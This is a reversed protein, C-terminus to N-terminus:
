RLGRPSARDAQMWEPHGAVESNWDILVVHEHKAALATLGSNAASEWSRAVETNVIYVPRPALDVLEADYLSKATDSWGNTGLHIVVVDAQELSGNNRAADVLPPLEEIQRGERTVFTLQSNGIPISRAAMGHFISDGFLLIQGPEDFLPGSLEIFEPSQAFGNLVAGASYGEQLLDVWYRLGEEDPSRDLVNNYILTVLEEDSVPGYTARFEDSRVFYNAIDVMPIGDYRVSHWYDLGGLDATRDFAALYLRGVAARDSAASAQAAPITTPSGALIVLVAVVAACLVLPMTRRTMSGMDILPAPSM